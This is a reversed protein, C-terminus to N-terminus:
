SIVVFSCSYILIIHNLHVFHVHWSSSVRHWHFKIVCCFHSAYFHIDMDKDSNATIELLNSLYIVCFLGKIIESLQISYKGSNFVLQFIVIFHSKCRASM